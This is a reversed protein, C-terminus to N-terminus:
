KPESSQWVCFRGRDANISPIMMNTSFGNLTGVNTISSLKAKGIPNNNAYCYLNLGGIVKPNLESIHAPSVFRCLEPDYYRSNLYYM